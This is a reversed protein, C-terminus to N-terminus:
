SKPNLRRGWVFMLGLLLGYWGVVMAESGKGLSLQGAPLKAFVEVVKVFYFAPVYALYAVVQALPMFILSTIAVLFGFIMMPFVAEAVLINAFPALPSIRGFYFLIVPATFLYASTAVAANSLLLDLFEKKLTRDGKPDSGQMFKGIFWRGLTMIGLTAAFTLQFSIEGVASPWVFIILLAAIVISLIPMVERGFFIAVSSALVMLTARVVPPEFGTLLAYGFCVVTALALSQRRGIYGALALFIGAVIMLNQGSVVVVHITGTRILEDQFDRGITDVGLVTGAILTAERTPLLQNINQTIKHRLGSLRAVSTEGYGIKEIKASLTKGGTDFTTEVKLQDGVRYKPFLDTYVRSDGIELIQRNEFIRPEKKLTTIFVVPQNKPLITKSQSSIRFAFGLGLLIIILFYLPSNKIKL